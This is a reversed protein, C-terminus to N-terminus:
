SGVPDISVDARAGPALSLDSLSASAEELQSETEDQDDPMKFDPLLQHLAENLEPLNHNYASDELRAVVQNLQSPLV